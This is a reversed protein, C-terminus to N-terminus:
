LREWRDPGPLGADVEAGFREVMGAVLGATTSTEDHLLPTLDVALVVQEVSEPDATDSGATDSGAACRDASYPDALTANARRRGEVALDYRKVALQSGFCSVLRRGLAVAERSCAFALRDGAPLWALSRWGEAGLLRTPRRDPPLERLAVVLAQTVARHTAHTDCPDHTVVVQPSSGELTHMLTAALFDVDRVDVSALGLHALAGYGGIAAASRQEGARVAVLDGGETRSPEGPHPAGAGDACVVGTFWLHPDGRCAGIWPLAWLELDDPHAMVGLHTTRALAETLPTGDPVFWGRERDEM